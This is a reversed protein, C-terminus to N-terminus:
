RVELEDILFNGGETVAVIHIIKGHSPITVDIKDTRDNGKSVNFTFGELVKQADVNVLGSDCNGFVNVNKEYFDKFESLSTTSKYSATFMENYIKATEAEDLDCLQSVVSLSKTIEGFFTNFIAGFGLFCLMCSCIILFICSFCGVVIFKGGNGKPKTDIVSHAGDREVAEVSVKSESKSM